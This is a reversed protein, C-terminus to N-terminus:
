GRRTLWHGCQFLVTMPRWAALEDRTVTAAGTGLDATRLAAVVGAPGAGIVIVDIM